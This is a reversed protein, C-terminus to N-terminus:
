RRVVLRLRGEGAPQWATNFPGSHANVRAALWAAEEASARQLRFRRLRFPLIEVAALATGALQVRYLAVLDPRQDRHRAIGEYDNILDGCGFLILKGRHVAMQRPHHSSHGHLLDVGAEEIARRAFALQDRSVQFGWNDGWHISAIAFDGPRKVAGIAAAVRAIRRDLSGELRAVGPRAPGAAWAPPVGSSGEAISLMVLRGGDPRPLCRARWAGAEDRGAGAHALGARDLTELTEVLGAEGWDLLHNNALACCDPRFARLAAINRPNMRYTIRKAAPRPATTIATELNLLRLTPGPAQLYPLADGWIYDPEVPRPITGNVGEAAYVFDLASRTRPDPIEPDCPHPMIQDVGRGLMVDGALLLSLM